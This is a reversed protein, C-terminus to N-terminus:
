RQTKWGSGRGERVDTMELFSRSPPNVPLALHCSLPEAPSPPALPSPLVSQLLSRSTTGVGVNTFGPTPPHHHCLVFLPWKSM